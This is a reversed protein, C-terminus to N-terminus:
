WRVKPKGTFPDISSAFYMDALNHALNAIDAAHYSSASRIPPDFNGVLPLGKSSGYTASFDLSGSPFQNSKFSHNLTNVDGSVRNLGFADNSVLFYWNAQYKTLNTQNPIFLGIDDIGDRDFDASVPRALKSAVGNAGGPFGKPKFSVDANGTLGNAALDFYFTGNQYTGLDDQGDGDFDGAIPLGRMKGVLKTDNATISNDGDTDLYWATGTFLGVEDGVKDANWNGAIPMGNIQLGSQIKEGPDSFDGDDNFDLRFYYKKGELGYTGLRDFGSVAGAGVDSFQGTFAAAGTPGYPVVVDQGAVPSPNVIFDGNIDLNASGNAYFGLEPTNDLNISGSGGTGTVFNGGPVGDGSPLAGFFDGDLKNFAVDAVRDFIKLTYQDDPLGVGFNLRVMTQGIDGSVTADVYDISLVPHVGTKKGVLAYNGLTTALTENVAPYLFADTRAPQDIFFIDISTIAQGPTSKPALLDVGNALVGIVQPGRTDLFIDLPTAISENGAADTSVAFLTRVGDLDFFTLNNLDITPDILYQGAGNSSATGIFQPIGNRDLVFLQVWNGTEAEGTFNAASKSTINDSFTAPQNAIGTDDPPNLFLSPSAPSATDITFSLPPSGFQTPGSRKVEAALGNPSNNDFVVTSATIQDAGDPLATTRVSWLTNNSGPVPDAFLTVIPVGANNRVYVQVAAGATMGANAEAATLMAVGADALDRLDDQIIFYPMNNKTIHDTSSQGTDNDHSGLPSGPLDAPMAVVTPVAAAFNEIELSYNGADQQQNNGRVRLYYVQGKVVPINLSTGDISGVAGPTSTIYNALNNFPAGIVNPGSLNTLSTPRYVEVVLQGGVISLYQANITLYGTDHAVYRFYDVDAENVGATTPDDVAHISLNPESIFPSSGLFTAQTPTDNIEFRDPVTVFEVNNFFVPVLGPATVQGDSSFLPSVTAGYANVVLRDGDPPVNPDGVAPAGGFVFIGASTSPRVFFNDNGANGFFSQTTGASYAAALTTNVRFTDNGAGSATQVSNAGNVVNVVTSLGSAMLSTGAGGFQPVAAIHDSTYTRGGGFGSDDIFVSSASNFLVNVTGLVSSLGGTGTNFSLVSSLGVFASDAGNNGFINVSEGARSAVVYIGDSSTGGNIDVRPTNFASDLLFLNVINNNNNGNFALYGTPNTFSLSEIGGNISVQSMNNGPTADDGITTNHAAADTLNITVNGLASTITVPELSTFNVIGGDLNLNGAGVGTANYIANAISGNRVLISDGGTTPFVPNGGNFTIGGALSIPAGNQDIIVQDNGDAGNVTYNNIVGSQAGLFTVVDSGGNAEVDMTGISSFTLPLGIGSIMGTGANGTLQLNDVGGTGNYTLTTFNSVSITSAPAFEQINVTTAGSTLSGTFYTTGNIGVTTTASPTYSAANSGTGDFVLQSNDRMGRVTVGAGLTSDIVFRDVGRGGEIVMPRDLTIFYSFTTSATGPVTVAGTFNTNDFAQVTVTAQNAGTKTVTIIDNDGTGTIYNFAPNAGVNADNAFQDFPTPSASLTNVDLNGNGLTLPFRTFFTDVDYGRYSMIDSDHIPGNILSGMPPSSPNNGFSHSLGFGHGSEHAVQVGLFQASYDLNRLFVLSTNDANNPRNVPSIGGYGNTAFAAPNDNSAGIAIQGVIVYDDNNKADGENAGLTLSIDNLSAAARVNHGNVSQFSSTLEVVTIDLPAYFRQVMSMIQARMTASNSGYNTNFSTYTFSTADPYNTGTADFLQPGAISPNGAAMATKLNGINDILGGVPFRDGFDVYLTATPVVRDELTDMVPKWRRSLAKMPINKSKRRIPKGFMIFSRPPTSPPM